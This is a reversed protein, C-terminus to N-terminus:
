GVAGLVQLRGEVDGVAAGEGEGQRGLDEEVVRHGREDPDGQLQLDRAEGEVAHRQEGVQPM